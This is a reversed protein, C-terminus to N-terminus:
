PAAKANSVAGMQVLDVFAAGAAAEIRSLPPAAMEQLLQDLFLVQVGHARILDLEAESKVKHVVLEEEWVGPWLRERLAQKDARRFKKEVWEAVGLSLEEVSRKVSSAARGEAAQVAKPVRSIYSVPRMSVQVEVHRCRVRGDPESRVALLDIEHVGLKVGRLTFWGQRRLWEEVLEEALLAM